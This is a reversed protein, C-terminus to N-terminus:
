NPIGGRDAMLAPIFKSICYPSRETLAAPFLTPKLEINEMVDSVSDYRCLYPYAIDTFCCIKRQTIELKTAERFNGIGM